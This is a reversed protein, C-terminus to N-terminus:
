IFLQINKEEPNENVTMLYFLEVVIKKNLSQTKKKSKTLCDRLAFIVYVVFSWYGNFILRYHFIVIQLKKLLYFLHTIKQM